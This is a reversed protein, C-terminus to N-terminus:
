NREYTGIGCWWCRHGDRWDHYAFWECGIRSSLAAFIEQVSSMILPGFIEHDHNFCDLRVFFRRIRHRLAPITTLRPDDLM